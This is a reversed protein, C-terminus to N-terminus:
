LIFYFLFKLWVEPKGLRHALERQTINKEITVTDNKQAEISLRQWRLFLRTTTKLSVSAM